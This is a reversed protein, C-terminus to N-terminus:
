LGPRRDAGSRLADLRAGDVIAVGARTYDLYYQYDKPQLFTYAEAVVGGIKLVAFWCAVFAFADPLPPLVRGPPRVGLERLVLGARNARAALEAFTCTEGG